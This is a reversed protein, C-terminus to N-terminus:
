ELFDKLVAEDDIIFREYISATEGKQEVNRVFTSVIFIDAAEGYSVTQSNIELGYDCLVRCLIWWHKKPLTRDVKASCANHLTRPSMGCIRELETKNLAPHSNIYEILKMIM